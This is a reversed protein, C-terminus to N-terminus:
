LQPLPANFKDCRSGILQDTGAQRLVHYQDPSLEKRWQEETKEVEDTM